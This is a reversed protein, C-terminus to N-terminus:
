RLSRRWLVISLATVLMLAMLISLEIGQPNWNFSGGKAEATLFLVRRIIAILGVVLFPEADLSRDRVTIRVTHLLEAVIFLILSKDLVTFLITLMSSPGRIASVVGTVIDVLLAAAIGVLVVGILVHLGDEALELLHLLRSTLPDPLAPM